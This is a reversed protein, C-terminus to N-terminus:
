HDSLKPDWAPMIVVSRVPSGNRYRPIFTDLLMALRSATDVSKHGSSRLITASVVRGDKGIVLRVIPPTPMSIQYKLSLMPMHWDKMVPSPTNAASAGRGRAWGHVHGGGLYAVGPKLLGQPHYVPQSDDNSSAAGSAGGQIIRVKDGKAYVGPTPAPRLQVRHPPAAPIKPAAFAPTSLPIPLLPPATAATLSENLEKQAAHARSALTANPLGPPKPMHSPAKAVSRVTQPHVFGTPGQIGGIATARDDAAVSASVGQWPLLKPRYHWLMYLGVVMTAEILLALFVALLSSIPVVGGPRLVFIKRTESTEALEDFDQTSLETNRPVWPDVLEARPGLVSGDDPSNQNLDNSASYTAETSGMPETAATRAAGAVEAAPLPSTRFRDSIM